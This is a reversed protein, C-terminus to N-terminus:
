LVAKDVEVNYATITKKMEPDYLIYGTRTYGSIYIIKARHNFKCGHAVQEDLVYGRSGFIKM